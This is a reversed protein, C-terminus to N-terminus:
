GVVAHFWRFSTGLFREGGQITATGDWVLSMKFNRCRLVTPGSFEATIGIGVGKRKRAVKTTIMVVNNAARLWWVFCYGCCREFYDHKVVDDPNITPVTELIM